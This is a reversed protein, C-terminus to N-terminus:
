GGKVTSAVFVKAWPLLVLSFTEFSSEPLVCAAQTKNCHLQLDPMDLRHHGRAVHMAFVKLM